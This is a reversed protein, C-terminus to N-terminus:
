SLKKGRVPAPPAEVQTGNVSVQVPKEGPLGQLELAAAAAGDAQAKQVAAHMQLAQDVQRSVELAARTSAVQLMALGQQITMLLQQDCEILIKDM